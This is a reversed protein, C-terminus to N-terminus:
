KQPPEPGLVSKIQQMTTPPPSTTALDEQNFTDVRKPGAPERLGLSSFSTYALQPPARSHKAGNTSKRDLLQTTTRAETNPDMAKPPPPNPNSSMPSPTDLLLIQLSMLSDTTPSHM